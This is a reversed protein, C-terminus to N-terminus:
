ASAESLDLTLALGLGSEPDDRYKFEIRAPHYKWSDLPFSFSRMRGMKIIELYFVDHGHPYSLAEFSFSCDDGLNCQATKRQFVLEGNPRHEDLKTQILFGKSELHKLTADFYALNMDM